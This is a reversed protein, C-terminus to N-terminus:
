NPLSLIYQFTNLSYTLFIILSPSSLISNNISPFLLLFSFYIIFLNPNIYIINTFNNFPLTFSIFITLIFILYSLFNSSTNNSYSIIPNFFFFSYFLRIIFSNFIIFSLYPFTFISNSSFIYTLSINFSVRNFVRV